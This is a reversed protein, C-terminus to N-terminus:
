VIRKREVKEKKDELKLLVHIGIVAFLEAFILFLGEQILLVRAPYGYDFPVTHEKSFQISERFLNRYHSLDFIQDRPLYEAPFSIQTVLLHFLFLGVGIGALSLILQLIRPVRIQECQDYLNVINQIMRGCLEFILFIGFLVVAMILLNYMLEQLLSFNRSDGDLSLDRKAMETYLLEEANRGAPAPLLIQVAPTEQEMAEPLQNVLVTPLRSEQTQIDKYVGCVQYRVGGIQLYLDQLSKKPLHLFLQEPIVASPLDDKWYGGSIWKLGVVTGYTDTTQVLCIETQFNEVTLLTESTPGSAALNKMAKAEQMSITMEPDPCLEVVSPVSQLLKRICLYAEIALFASILLCLLGIMVRYKKKRRKISQYSQKM